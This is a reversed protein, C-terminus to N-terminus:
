AKSTSLRPIEAFARIVWINVSCIHSEEPFAHEIGVLNNPKTTAYQRLRRIYDELMVEDRLEFLFLFFRATALAGVTGSTSWRQDHSGTTNPMIMSNHSLSMYFNRLLLKTKIQSAKANRAKCIKVYTLLRVLLTVERPLYM